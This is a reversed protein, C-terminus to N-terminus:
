KTGETSTDPPKAGCIHLAHCTGCRPRGASYPHQGCDVCLGQRYREHRIETATM